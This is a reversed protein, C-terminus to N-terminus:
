EPLQGNDKIKIRKNNIQVIIGSKLPVVSGHAVCIKKGSPTHAIWEMGSINYLGFVGQKQENEVIKAIIDIKDPFDDTIQINYVNRHLLAAMRYRKEAFELSFPVEQQNGCRDCKVSFGEVWVIEQGCASCVLINNKLNMLCQSWELEDPRIDPSKMAERSFARMFMERVYIPLKSWKDYFDRNIYPHPRNSDDEEDMIFVAKEGYMVQRRRLSHGQLTAVGEYPHKGTLYEFLLLAMTYRNGILSFEKEEANANYEPPLFRFCEERKRNVACSIDDPWFIEKLSDSIQIDKSSLGKLITKEQSYKWIDKCICLCVSLTTRYDPMQIKSEQPNKQKEKYVDRKDMKTLEEEGDVLADTSKLRELQKLAEKRKKEIEIYKEHYTRYEENIKNSEIRLEEIHKTIEDFEKQLKERHEKQKDIQIQKEQLQDKLRTARQNIMDLIYGHIEQFLAWCGKKRIDRRIEEIGKEVSKLEDNLRILSDELNKIRIDDSALMNKYEHFKVDMAGIKKQKSDVAAQLYEHKREMSKLRKDCESVIMQLRYEEEFSKVGEELIKRHQKVANEFVIGAISVDDKSGDRSHLDLIEGVNKEFLEKGWDDFECLRRRYFNLRADVDDEGYADEVGDSGVFCGLIPNCKLNIVCHRISSSVDENCMSTTYVSYCRDDWPIPEDATGDEYFVICRGDGQQILILYDEILLFAILTTGYAHECHIGRRYEDADREAVSLEEETFPNERLNEMIREYWDAIISDTLTRILEARELSDQELIDGMCLVPHDSTSNEIEIEEILQQGFRSLGMQAAEVAEQSGIQARFCNPDGHGDAIAAIYFNQFPDAFSISADECVTGDQIHRYGRVTQNFVEIREM